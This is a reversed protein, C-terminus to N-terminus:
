LLVDLYHTTAALPQSRCDLTAIGACEEIRRDLSDVKFPYQGTQPDLPLPDPRAAFLEDLKQNSV